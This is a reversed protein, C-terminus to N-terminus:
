ARTRKKDFNAQEECAKAFERAFEAWFDGIEQKQSRKRATLRSNAARLERIEHELLCFSPDV